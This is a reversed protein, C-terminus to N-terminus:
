DQGLPASPPSVHHASAPSGGADHTRAGHGATAHPKAGEAIGATRPTVAATPAPPLFPRPTSSPFNFTAIVSEPGGPALYERTMLEFAVAAYEAAGRSTPALDFITRRKDAAESLKVNEHVVTDFVLDGYKARLQGLVIRAITTRIVASPTPQACALM